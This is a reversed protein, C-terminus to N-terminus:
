ERPVMRVSGVQSPRRRLLISRALRGPLRVGVGSRDASSLGPERRERTQASLKACFRVADAWSVNEVPHTPGGRCTSPNEGMIKEYHEQTVEHIAMYFARSIRVAHQPGENERRMPESAPSGMLFKGSPILVLRMGLSNTLSKELEAPQANSARTTPPNTRFCFVLALPVFVCLVAGGLAAFLLRRNRGQRRVRSQSQQLQAAEETPRFDLDHNVTEPASAEGSPTNAVLTRSDGGASASPPSNNSVTALATAAEAPTQYRDEPRKAMLRRLVAALSPPVDPRRQEIPVPEHLQHQAIKQGLSGGAFPASGTLLFYLTCGLSYLDARIDVRHSDLTQEPAIYDPTGMIAGEQTM